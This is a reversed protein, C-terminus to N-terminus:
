AAREYENILGGLVPRRKIREQSLDAVPHERAQEAVQLAPMHGGAGGAFRIARNWGAADAFMLDVGAAWAPFAWFEPAWAASAAPLRLLYGWTPHSTHAVPHLEIVLDAISVAAVSPHLGRAASLM